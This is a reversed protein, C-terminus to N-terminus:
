PAPPAPPTPPPGGDDRHAIRDLARKARGTGSEIRDSYKGGTKRDVVRAAKDLGHDIRDGHQRALGSVKERAPGLRAKLQDLFGM